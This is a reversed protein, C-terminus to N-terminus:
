ELYSKLKYSIASKVKLKIKNNKHFLFFVARGCFSFCHLKKEKRHFCNFIILRNGNKYIIIRM